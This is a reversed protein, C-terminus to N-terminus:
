QQSVRERIVSGVEGVRDVLTEWPADYGSWHDQLSTVSHWLLFLSVITFFVCLAPSWTTDLVTFVLRDKYNRLIASAEADPSDVLINLRRTQSDHSLTFLPGLKSCISTFVSSDIEGRYNPVYFKRREEYQDNPDYRVHAGDFTKPYESLVDHIFKQVGGDDLCVGASRRAPSRSRSM